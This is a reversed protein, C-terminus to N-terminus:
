KLYRKEPRLIFLYIFSLGEFRFTIFEFKGATAPLSHKKRVGPVQDSQTITAKFHCELGSVAGGLECRFDAEGLSHLSSIVLSPV